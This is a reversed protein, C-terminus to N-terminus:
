VSEKQNLFGPTKNQNKTLAKIKVKELDKKSIEM